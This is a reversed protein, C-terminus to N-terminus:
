IPCVGLNYTFLFFLLVAFAYVYKENLPSWKEETPQEVKINREFREGTHNRKSFESKNTM